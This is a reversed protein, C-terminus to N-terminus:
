PEITHIVFIIFYTYIVVVSLQAENVDNIKTSEFAILFFSSLESWLYELGSTSKTM